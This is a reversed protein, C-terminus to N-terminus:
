HALEALELFPNYSLLRASEQYGSLVLQSQSYVEFLIFCIDMVLRLVPTKWMPRTWLSMMADTCLQQILQMSTNKGVVLMKM